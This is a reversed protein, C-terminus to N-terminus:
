NGQYNRKQKRKLVLVIMQIRCLRKTRKFHECAERTGSAPNRLGQYINIFSIQVSTKIKM